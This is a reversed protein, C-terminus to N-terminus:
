GIIPLLSDIALFGIAALSLCQVAWSNESQFTMKNDELNKM